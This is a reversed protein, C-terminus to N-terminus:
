PSSWIYLNQSTSFKLISFHGMAIPIISFQAAPLSEFNQSNVLRHIIANSWRRPMFLPSNFVATSQRSLSELRAYCEASRALTGRHSCYSLIEISKLDNRGPNRQGPRETRVLVTRDPAFSPRAARAIEGMSWCEPIGPACVSNDTPAIRAHISQACRIEPAIAAPWACMSHM